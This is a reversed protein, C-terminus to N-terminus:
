QAAHAGNSDVRAELKRGVIHLDTRARQAAWDIVRERSQVPVNNLIGLIKKMAALEPDLPAPMKRDKKEATTAVAAQDQEM